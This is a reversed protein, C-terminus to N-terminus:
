GAADCVGLAERLIQLIIKQEARAEASGSGRKGTTLTALLIPDSGKKNKMRPDAGCELLTKVALSCRTRVARHLPAVGFKDKANPDAGAGTLVRITDSQAPPNWRASGPSGVAAAHLPEDGLRNKANVPVGMSILTRILKADYAAAAFHLPTDGELVYRGIPVLFNARASSRTAGSESRARALEPAARLLEAVRERNGFAIAEFLSRLDSQSAM